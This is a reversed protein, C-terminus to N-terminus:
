RRRMLDAIREGIVITTANTNARVSHPMISADAVRLGAIGHVRGYQDVVALPDAAPGMKCTGAAHYSTVTERQLWADLAADSALQARTPEILDGLVNAFAPHEALRVATRVAERLRQRDFPHNMYRFDILPADHPDPSALRIEGGGVQFYVGCNMALRQGEEFPTRGAGTAGRQMTIKLDNRLDSGSATFRLTVPM